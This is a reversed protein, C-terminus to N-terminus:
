KIEELLINKINEDIKNKELWNVLSEKLTINEQKTIVLNSSMIFEKKEVFKSFKNKYTESLPLFGRWLNYDQFIIRVKTKPDLQDLCTTLAGISDFQVQELHKSNKTKPPNQAQSISSEAKSRDKIAQSNDDNTSSGVGLNPEKQSLEINKLPYPSNLPIWLWRVNKEKYNLCVAVKKPINEDEGFDIYRISGIHVGNKPIMQFDHQHGLIVYRYQSLEKISKKTGYNLKSESVTYHGVYLYNEDIYESCVQVNDKLIGFHNIISEESNISEHSRAAIIIIPLNIKKLFTSLCDLELPSPNVFDFTDGTIIIKNIKYKDILIILENFILNIEEIDKTTIHIDGFFM